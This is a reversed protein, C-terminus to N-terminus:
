MRVFPNFLAKWLRRRRERWFQQERGETRRIEMNTERMKDIFPRLRFVAWFLLAALVLFGIILGTLLSVEETEIPM